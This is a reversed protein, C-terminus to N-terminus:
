ILCFITYNSCIRFIEQRPQRSCLQHAVRTRNKDQCFVHRHQLAKQPGVCQGHCQAFCLTMDYYQLGITLDPFLHSKVTCRGWKPIKKEQKKKRQFYVTTLKSGWFAQQHCLKPRTVKKTLLRNHLAVKTYLGNFTRIRSDFFFTITMFSNYQM